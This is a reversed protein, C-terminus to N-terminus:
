WLGGKMVGHEQVVNKLVLATFCCWIMISGGSHKVTPDTKKPNIDEIERQWVCVADMDGFLELKTERSWLISKLFEDEHKQHESPFKLRVRIHNAAPRHSM